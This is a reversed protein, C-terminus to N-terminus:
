REHIKIYRLRAEYLWYIVIFLSLINYEGNCSCIHLFFSLYFFVAPAAISTLVQFEMLETALFEMLSKQEGVKQHTRLLTNRTPIQASSPLSITSTRCLFGSATWKEWREFRLAKASLGVFDKVDQLSLWKSNINRLTQVTINQCIVRCARRRGAFFTM